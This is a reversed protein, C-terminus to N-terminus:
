LWLCYSVLRNFLSVNIMKMLRGESDIIAVILLSIVEIIYTSGLLLLLYSLCEKYVVVSM